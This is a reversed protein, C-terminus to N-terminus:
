KIKVRFQISFSSNAAMTGQPAFRVANVATDYGAAPTYVYSTGGNNSYTLNAAAFTLGSTGATFNYNTTLPGTGDIDGNYFTVNSPLPDTLVLSSADAPSSNTNTVTLTYIIDAGPVNHSLPDATDTIFPASTKAMSIGPVPCFSITQIGYAQQGTVTEGAQLPYNGYNITITTVPQAFTATVTGGNANNPNNATGIADNATEGAYPTSAPGLALTSSANTTAGGINNTSFPTTITPTYTAAGNSGTMYIWDRYQSNTYDIDNVQIAFDRIPTAFTIVTNLLNSTGKISATRGAFTGGIVLNNTVTGDTILNNIAPLQVNATGTNLLSSSVGYGTTKMTFTQTQSNGNTATYTYTSGYALTAATASGFSFNYQNTTPCSAAVLTPTLPSVAVFFAFLRHNFMASM